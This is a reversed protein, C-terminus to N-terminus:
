ITVDLFVRKIQKQQLKNTAVKGSGFQGKEM